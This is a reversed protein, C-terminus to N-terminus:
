NSITSVEQTIPEASEIVSGLRRPGDGWRVRLWRNIPESYVRAVLEGLLGAILIVIVFLVPVAKMPKNAAVFLSFFGLVVFIHTLYVEYSRRGMQLFPTLIRPAQWQTQAVAAIVMCAGAALITMNLGNRGLGWTYARISFGLSFVLLATGLIGLAWLFKPTLHRRAVFLATLCGLAIADMGGLYSYERWVPNPNFARSRAFPGLVVFMLLPIVLFRGRRFLFCALPFFLYFMEEVSLSWMIDWGAPLYGRRAELLNIHFTFAALLARGLGGVKQNVVFDKIHALHLISLIVLLGLLLPAIRAFRLQYFERVNVRSLSGWRRLTTSTILFGSVAFFIQVGFQGNWVLSSVLQPPLGRTYPVKASLLRMNVHNMLVFFIALGRLLDVGDLRPWSPTPRTFETSTM